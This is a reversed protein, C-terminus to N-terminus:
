TTPPPIACAVGYSTVDRHRIQMILVKGDEEKPKTDQCTAVAPRVRGDADRFLYTISGDEDPDAKAILPAWAESITPPPPPEVKQPLNAADANLCGQFYFLAGFLKFTVTM